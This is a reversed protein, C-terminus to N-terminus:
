GGPSAEFCAKERREQQGESLGIRRIVDTVLIPSNGEVIGLFITTM